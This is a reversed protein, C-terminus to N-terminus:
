YLYMPKAITTIPQNQDSVKGHEPHLSGNHLGKAVNPGVKQEDTTLTKALLSKFPVQVETFKSWQKKTDACTVITVTM